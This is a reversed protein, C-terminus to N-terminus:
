DDGAPLPLANPGPGRTSRTGFVREYVDRGFSTSLPQGALIRFTRRGDPLREARLFCADPRAEEFLGTALDVLHTVLLVTVGRDAFARVVDGAIQAGERENTSSFSENCLLLAGPRVRDAIGSMRALEEDLKGHVMGADEDRAFHTFVQRRPAGTFSSAGVFMGASLMLHAVGISRLFTSKGGQNAGTIVVLQMGSAQLDNGVAPAGARLVLSVDYLDSAEVGLNTSTAPDPYCTPAGLGTLRDHLNVCGLYFALETRLARLFEMVHEVAQGAVDAVASLGRDRLQALAQFGAEDRDPITYSFTPRRLGERHWFTINEDRTQRLRYGTGRNGSGLRATLLLGHPFHLQHLHQEVLAFYEADMDQAMSAFLRRFGTSAFRESNERGVRDLGRLTDVLAELVNVSWSLVQDPREAFFWRQVNKRAELGEGALRYLERVVGTQQLCDALVQQRFRIVAADDVGDLLVARSTAAILEDDAAMVHLMPALDLDATLDDAHAPQRPTASRDPFLLHVKM